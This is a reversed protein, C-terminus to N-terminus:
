LTVRDSNKTIPKIKDPNTKQITKTTYGKNQEMFTQNKENVIAHM